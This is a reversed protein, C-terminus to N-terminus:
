AKACLKFFLISSVWFTSATSSDATTNNSIINFLKKESYASSIQGRHKAFNLAILEVM